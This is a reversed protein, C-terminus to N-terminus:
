AAAIFLRMIRSCAQFDKALLKSFEGRDTRTVEAMAAVLNSIGKDKGYSELAMITAGTAPYFTFGKSGGPPTYTPKGDDGVILTGLRIDKVIESKLDDWDKRAEEALESTDHDIRNADCLRVFEAEAVEKAVKHKSKLEVVASV